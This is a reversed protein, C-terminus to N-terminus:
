NLFVQLWARRTSSDEGFTDPRPTTIATTDTTPLVGVHGTAAPAHDFLPGSVSHPMGETNGCVQIKVVDHHPTEAVASAPNIAMMADHGLVFAIVVAAIRVMIMAKTVRPKHGNM